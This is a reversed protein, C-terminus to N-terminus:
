LHVLYQLHPLGAPNGLGAWIGILCPVVMVLCRTLLPPCLATIHYFQGGRLWERPYPGSAIRAEFSYPTSVHHGSSFIISFM